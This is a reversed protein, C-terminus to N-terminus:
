RKMTVIMHIRKSTVIKCTSTKRSDATDLRVYFEADEDNDDDDDDFLAKRRVRGNDQVAEYNVGERFCVIM